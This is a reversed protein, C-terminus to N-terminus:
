NKVRVIHAGNYRYVIKSATVRGQPTKQDELVVPFSVSKTKPNFDFLRLPRERRDAVSFFDYGFSISDTIGSATKFIKVGNSISNGDIQYAALSEGRLSTSLVSTSSVLYVTGTKTEIDFINHAFGGPDGEAGFTGRSLVGEVGQFQYVKEYFHMTGGSLTDWSYVRLKGDPSTAISIKKDLMPFGYRLISAHQETAALFKERFAINAESLKADQDESYEGSYGSYKEVEGLLTLLEAEIQENTHAFVPIATVFVAIALFITKM